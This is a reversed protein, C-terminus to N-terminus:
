DDSFKISRIGQDLEVQYIKNKNKQKEKNFDKGQVRVLKRNQPANFDRDFASNDKLREDAYTVKSIDIRCFREKVPQSSPRGGVAGGRNYNGDDSTRPRKDHRDDQEEEEEIPQNTREAFDSALSNDIQKLYALVLKQAETAPM